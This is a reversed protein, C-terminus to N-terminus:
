GNMKEKIKAQTEASIEHRLRHSRIRLEALVSSHVAAKGLYTNMDEYDVRRQADRYTTMCWDFQQEHWKIQNNLAYHQDEKSSPTVM